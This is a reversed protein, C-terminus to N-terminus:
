VSSEKVVEVLSIITLRGGVKAALKGRGIRAGRYAAPFVNLLHWAISFTGESGAKCIIKSASSNGM